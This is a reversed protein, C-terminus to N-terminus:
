EGEQKLRRVYGLAHLLAREATGADGDALATNAEVLGFRAEERADTDASM